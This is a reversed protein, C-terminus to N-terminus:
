VAMQRIVRSSFMDSVALNWFAAYESAWSRAHHRLLFSLLLFYTQEVRGTKAAFKARWGHWCWTSPRAPTSATVHAAKIFRDHPTSVGALRVSIIIDYDIHSIARGRGIPLIGDGGGNM